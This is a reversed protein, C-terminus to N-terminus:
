TGELKLQGADCYYPGYIVFESDWVHPTHPKKDRCDMHSWHGRQGCEDCHAGYKGM